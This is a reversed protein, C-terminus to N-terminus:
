KAAESTIKKLVSRMANWHAGSVVGTRAMNREAEENVLDVYKIISEIDLEVEVPSRANWEEIADEHWPANDSTDYGTRVEAGRATCACEVQGWKTGQTVVFQIETSGCFPCPKVKSQTAMSVKRGRQQRRTM